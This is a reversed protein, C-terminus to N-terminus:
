SAIQVIHDILVFYKELVPFKTAYSGLIPSLLLFTVLTLELSVMCYVLLFKKQKNGNKLLSLLDDTQRDDTELDPVQSIPNVAKKM